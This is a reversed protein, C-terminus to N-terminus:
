LSTSMALFNEIYDFPINKDVLLKIGTDRDLKGEDILKKIQSGKPREWIPISGSCKDSFVYDFSKLDQLQREDNQSGDNSSIRSYFVKM